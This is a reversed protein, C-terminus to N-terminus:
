TTKKYERYILWLAFLQAALGLPYAWWPLVEFDVSAKLAWVGLANNGIHAVIGPWISGTWLCVCALVAGLYGTPLIRNLSFHFLGFVLGVIAIRAWPGFRSRLGGLLLGRFTLEEFIGPLIAVLVLLEFTSAGAPDLLKLMQEAMEQSVPLFTQTWRVLGTAALQGSPILLLVALWVMPNKVAKLSFLRKGQARYYRAVLLPIAGFVVLQNFFVQGRLAALSAFNGPVVMLAAAMLAFIPFLRDALLAENDLLERDTSSRVLEERSLDSTTRWTLLAAWGFNVLAALAVSWIRFDGVMLAKFAVASNSLPILVIPSELVVEPLTAALSLLLAVIFIPLYYTQAERYSEAHGSAFLLVGAVLCAQGFVTISIGLLAWGGLKLSFDSPLEFWRFHVYVLVNLVQMIAILAAVLFVALFKAFILEDRRSACTLLTQMSGREREGALIDMAAVSGGGLLLLTFFAGIFPGVLAGSREAATSLEVEEPNFLLHSRHVGARVLDDDVERVRLAILQDEMLQYARLSREDDARFRIHIVPAEGLYRSLFEPRPDANKEAPPRAKRNSEVYLDIDGQSLLEAGGERQAERFIDANLSSKLVSRLWPDSGVGYTYIPTSKIGEARSHALQVAWLLLPMLVLPLVVSLIVTRHDRALMRLEHRLILGINNRRNM